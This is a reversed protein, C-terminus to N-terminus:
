FILKLALQMTRPNSSFAQDPRNFINQSAILFNRETTGTFGVAAVDNLFGGIYQSHNFVNSARASFELATRETINVRKAATLDLNNIPNFHGLNRGGNPLTGKPGVIYKANPNDALYAVVDGNSNTLPSAGSGLNPNGGPNIFTRDPASDGNLNSDTGSQATFLTGTQYTYIPAVEWNGVLNKLFWNSQKFFPLDYIMLMTFRQRHDLASSAREIRLDQSNEPRRPTLLTSFTSATSDDIAHSWTYAAQMQLGNSFRRNLQNAWGHYTSNGVPMFATLPNVFGANRYGPVINGDNNEAAVLNSLTSTLGNLVGQSPMSTFLPLANQPTVTPQFNLQVQVPLNIGRSGLYRSEFTYNNLFVHQIGFNWQISKPRRQDPIYGATNARAEDPTLASGNYSGIIGGNRLFNTADNGTVDITSNFQPPVSLIGLNDYLVDYNIGFGGRISTKGSTGPSYAFGVRPMFDTKQPQPETFSVLSPVSAEMNLSQLRETYPVSQFEYRLGINVTFNPRIKWDDNFFGGLLVQDGSYAGTGVSRQAIYDPNFDYLYDNLYNWEYDGRSRQLFGQPSISKWGDFGFKFNHAGRVLSVNDALQYTNQITYQPANGDPGFTINAEYINISPFQDLGPFTQNTISIDQFTRNYGIRFENTLTPTFTHYESMTILYNNTPITTFFQAPYGTTDISGQRNLIFRARLSDKDSVNYDFSTVAAENNTYSPLSTSTQALPISLAGAADSSGFIGQGLGQNNFVGGTSITPAVLANAVTPGTATGFYKQFQALNTQNIGPLAALTNYGEATPTYFYTSATNGLPNYEYDVFFFMKNRKIPGGINGGFRNNDYRPHLPNGEVSNLNDAANLNRNEFYEYLMGHFQNSGSKVVQNFQGGSSHGFEPSFQNALVSFEAVADNPLSVVPGTISKNNNDIGEITFNNNTPRQGGISPGVGQGVGGSSAVGASYLSLNIVGSGTSAVPLDSMQKADFTNQVQATTTDINASGATVEVTTAAQGVELNINSTLTQNIRVAVGHIVFKAFGSAQATVTYAGAPLNEVRYQGSSTSVTSNEANTADNRITVQAGPVTAGSQDYVTGTINGSTLQAFVPVSTLMLAALLAGTKLKSIFKM